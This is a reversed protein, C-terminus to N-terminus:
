SSQTKYKLRLTRSGYAYRMLHLHINPVSHCGKIIPLVFVYNIVCCLPTFLPQRASFGAIPEPRRGCSVAAFEDLCGNAFMAFERM